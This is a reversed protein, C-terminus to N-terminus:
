NKSIVKKQWSKKGCKPCKMKRTRGMHMAWFVSKFTPIYKHGCEACKYYGATQEIKLLFPVIILFPIVSSLAILGKQWETCNLLNILITAFILPVLATIGTIVEMKLLMRDKEEKEKTIEILKNELEKNYNSM